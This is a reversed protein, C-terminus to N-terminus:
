HTLERWESFLLLSVETLQVIEDRFNPCRTLSDCITTQLIDQCSLKLFHM